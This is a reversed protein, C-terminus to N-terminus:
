IKVKKLAEEVLKNQTNKDAVDGLAKEVSMAILSGFEKKIEQLTKEREDLISKKAETKTKDIEISADRLINEKISVADKESQRIIKESERRASSLINEKASEAEGLRKKLELSNEIDKAVREKRDSLSKMIPKYLFKKLFFFLVAFNFIQALLLMWNIGLSSFLDSM